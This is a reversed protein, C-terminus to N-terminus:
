LDPPNAMPPSDGYPSTGEGGHPRVVPGPLETETTGRCAINVSRGAGVFKIPGGPKESPHGLRVYRIGCDAVIPEGANGIVRGNLYVSGDVKAKVVLYGKTRPLASADGAAPAASPAASPEASASASASASPAASPEASASASPEASAEASASAAATATAPAAAETSPKPRATAPETPARKTAKPAKTTAAPKPELFADLWGNRMALWAGTGVLAAAALGVGFMSGLRSKKKPPPTSAEARPRLFSPAEPGLAQGAGPPPGAPAPPEAVPPSPVAEMANTGGSAKAAPAPAPPM